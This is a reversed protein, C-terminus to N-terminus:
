QIDITIQNNDNADITVTQVAKDSYEAPIQTPKEGEGPRQGLFKVSTVPNYAELKVEYEGPVMGDMENNSYTRVGSFVGDKDTYATAPSGGEKPEFSVTAFAVPEGKILVKGQVPYTKKIPLEKQGGCGMVVATLGVVCGYFYAKKM